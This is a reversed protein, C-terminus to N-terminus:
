QILFFANLSLLRYTTPSFFLGKKESFTNRMGIKSKEENNKNYMM